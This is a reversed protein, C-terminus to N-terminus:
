VGGEEFTGCAGGMEDKKIERGPSIHKNLVVLWSGLNLSSQRYLVM